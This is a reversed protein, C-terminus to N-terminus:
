RGKFVPDRKEQFSKNGERFDYTKMNESFLHYENQLSSVLDNMLSYNLMTKNYGLCRTPMEAINGIFVNSKKEFESFSYVKNVLCIDLAEKANLHNGNFIIETAKALGILRPLFWSAGHLMCIARSTRHDGIELNDAALRFDCAIALEFGAGLCYGHLLAIVPKEIKRILYILKHHNLRFKEGVPPFEDGESVMRVLDDGSCFARGNGKFVIVRINPDKEISEFVDIMEGVMSFQLANLKNPRNLTITGIGEKVQFIIDKYDKNSITYM